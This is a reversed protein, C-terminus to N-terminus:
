FGSVALEGTPIGDNLWNDNLGLKHACSDGGPFETEQACDCESFAPEEQTSEQLHRVSSSPRLRSKARCGRCAAAALLLFSYYSDMVKAISIPSVPSPTHVKSRCVSLSARVVEKLWPVHLLYCRLTLHQLSKM